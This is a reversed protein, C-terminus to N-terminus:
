IIYHKNNKITYLLSSFNTKIDDKYFAKYVIVTYIFIIWLFLIIYNSLRFYIVILPFVFGLTIIEVLKIINYNQM